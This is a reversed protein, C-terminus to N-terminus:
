RVVSYDGKEAAEYAQTCLVELRAGEARVRRATWILRFRAQEMRVRVEAAMWNRMIYKPNAGDMEARREEAPRGQYSTPNQYSPGLAKTLPPTHNSSLMM